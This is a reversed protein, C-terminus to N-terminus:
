YIYAEKFPFGVKHLVKVKKISYPFILVEMLIKMIIGTQAKGTRTVGTGTMKCSHWWSLLHLFFEGFSVCVSFIVQCCNYLKVGPLYSICGNICSPLGRFKVQYWGKATRIWASSSHSLFFCYFSVDLKHLHSSLASLSAEWCAIWDCAQPPDM